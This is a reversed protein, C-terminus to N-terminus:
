EDRGYAKLRLHLTDAKPSGAELAFVYAHTLFFCTAEVDDSAEAQDAAVTYLAILQESDGAAHADLLAADLTAHGTDRSM